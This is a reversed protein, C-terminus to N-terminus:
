EDPPDATHIPHTGRHDVRFAHGHPSTWLYTGPTLTDYHWASHTKARHHRRCLPVENCPCTVGGQAHPQSHDIDCRTAPRTCRPFRCTHDRLAVARKHRDPVEYGTVPLHDALDIVPRITITTDHAQLWERIQESSLPGNGQEWRGVPNDGTLTTDTIHVNLEVKRGPVAIAEGTDPDPILLDLALDARALEAAARSRRVDLSSHDGLRGLVEARRTVAQNLDHGDAADMLGSVEVLGHDDVHPDIDFRRRDAAKAREAEATAPDFRLVAETVLRDLQAWGVGTADFLQRDVFAAAESNLGHTREAIREARWPALRGAVVADYVHPLRWACEIVRGVYARGGDPSRGLVAVLEMLGFESVLPAGDGAIPVGTDLYGDTITAAGEPGAVVHRSAWEVIGVWERVVLAERDQVGARLESLVAATSRPTTGLDM